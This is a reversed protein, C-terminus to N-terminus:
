LVIYDADSGYLVAVTGQTQLEKKKMDNRTFTAQTDIRKGSPNTFQCYITVDYDTHRNKGSGRTVLTGTSSKLQGFILQGDRRLRKVRLRNSRGGFWMGLGVVAMIGLLIPIFIVSGLRLGQGGLHSTKPDDVAYTVQVYSGIPNENYESSSVNEERRYSKDKITFEYTEYYSTSKGRSIRQDIIRAEASATKMTMLRVEIIFKPLALGIMFVVFFTLFVGACGFRSWLYRYNRRGTVIRQHFPNLIFLDEPVSTTDQFGVGQYFGM